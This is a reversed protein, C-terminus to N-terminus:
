VLEEMSKIEKEIGKLYVGVRVVIGCGIVEMKLIGAAMFREM